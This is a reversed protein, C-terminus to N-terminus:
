LWNYSIFPWLQLTKGLVDKTLGTELLKELGKRWFNFHNRAYMPPEQGSPLLPVGQTAVLTATTPVGGPVSTVLQLLM